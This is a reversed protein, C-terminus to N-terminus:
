KKMWIQDINRNWTEMQNFISYFDTINFNFKKKM